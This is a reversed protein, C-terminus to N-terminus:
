RSLQDAYFTLLADHDRVPVEDLWAPDTRQPDLALAETRLRCADFLAQYAATADGPVVITSEGGAIRRPIAERYRIHAAHSQELLQAVTM